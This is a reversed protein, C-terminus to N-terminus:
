RRPTCIGVGDSRSCHVSVPLTPMAFLCNVFTSGSTLQRNRDRVVFIPVDAACNQGIANPVLTFFPSTHRGCSAPQFTSLRIHAACITADEGLTETTTGHLFSRRYMRSTISETRRLSWGSPPM